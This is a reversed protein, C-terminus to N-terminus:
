ENGHRSFTVKKPIKRLNNNKGLNFNVFFNHEGTIQIQRVNLINIYRPRVLERWIADYRAMVNLAFTNKIM